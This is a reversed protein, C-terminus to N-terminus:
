SSNRAIGDSRQASACQGTSGPYVRLGTAPHPRWRGGAFARDDHLPRRGRQRRLPRTLYPRPPHAPGGCGAMPAPSARLCPRDAGLALRTDDRWSIRHTDGDPALANECLRGRTTRRHRWSPRRTSSGPQFPGRTRRTTCTPAAPASRPKPRSRRRHHPAAPGERTHRRSRRIGGAVPVTTESPVISSILAQEHNASSGNHPRGGLAAV